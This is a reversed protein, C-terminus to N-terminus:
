KKRYKLEIHVTRKKWDPDNVDNHYQEGFHATEIMSAKVGQKLFYNKAALVRKKSLYKNYLDSGSPDTYGSLILTFEINSEPKQFHRIDDMVDRLIDLSTTTLSFQDFDFYIDERRSVFPRTNLKTPSIHRIKDHNGEVLYPPTYPAKEIRSPSFNDFAFGFDYRVDNQPTIQQIPRFEILMFPKESEIKLPLVGGNDGILGPGYTEGKSREEIPKKSIPHHPYDTAEAYLYIDYAEITNEHGDVDLLDASCEDISQEYQIFVSPLTEGQLDCSIFYCGVRERNTFAQNLAYLSDNIQNKRVPSIPTGECDFAYEPGYYGGSEAEYAVKQLTLSVSDKLHYSKFVRFRIDGVAITGIPDGPKLPNFNEFDVIQAHGSLAFIVLFLVLSKM